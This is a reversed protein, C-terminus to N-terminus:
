GGDATQDAVCADRLLFLVDVAVAFQDRCATVNNQPVRRGLGFRKAADQMSAAGVRGAEALPGIV